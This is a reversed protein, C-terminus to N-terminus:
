GSPSPHKVSNILDFTWDTRWAHPCYLNTKQKPGKNTCICAQERWLSYKCFGKSNIEAKKCKHQNNNYKM